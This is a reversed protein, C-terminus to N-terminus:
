RTVLVSASQKEAGDLQLGWEEQDGEPEDRREDEDCRGMARGLCLVYAGPKAEAHEALKVSARSGLEEDGYTRCGSLLASRANAEPECPMDVVCTYHRQNLRIVYIRAMSDFYALGKEVLACHSCAFLVSLFILENPAISSTNGMEDFRQLSEESFGNEALGQIMATLVVDNKNQMWNFIKVSSKIEGSKAYM